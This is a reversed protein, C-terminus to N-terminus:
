VYEVLGPLLRNKGVHAIVVGAGGPLDAVGPSYRVSIIGVRFRLRTM